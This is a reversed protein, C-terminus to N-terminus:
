GLLLKRRRSEGWWRPVKGLGKMILVLAEVHVEEEQVPHIMPRNMMTTPLNSNTTKDIKILPTTLKTFPM